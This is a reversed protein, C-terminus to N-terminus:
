VRGIVISSAGSAGIIEYAFYEVGTLGTPVGANGWDFETGWGTINEATTVTIFGSQGITQNTVTVNAATATFTHNNNDNFAISNDGATTSTRQAATFSQAVDLKATDADYAQVDTGIVLGLTTRQDSASADDLLARGAATLTAVAYTDSATTYIMRDALTTLGAISLLGADYAQVDTGITLGLNDRSTSADAVDSLNNAILLRGATAILPTGDAKTYYICKWDGAAYEVFEAVDGVATTINAGSPLILDTAHHTLTLIGDFQLRIVTGINGTTAISTITTTGTVDFYNGDTLIPLEAASAVDAGKALGVGVGFVIADTGNQSTLTDVALSDLGDGSSGQALYFTITNTGATYTVSPNSGLPLHVVEVADVGIVYQVNPPILIESGSGDTTNNFGM